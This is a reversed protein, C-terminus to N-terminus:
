SVTTLKLATARHIATDDRDLDAYFAAKKVARVRGFSELDDTPSESTQRIIYFDDLM